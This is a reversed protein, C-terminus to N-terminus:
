AYERMEVNAKKEGEGGSMPSDTRSVGNKLDYAAQESKYRTQEFPKKRSAGLTPQWSASRWPRTDSKYLEDVQELSLGKVQKSDADAKPRPPEASPVRREVRFIGCCSVEHIFFFTYIFAVVLM